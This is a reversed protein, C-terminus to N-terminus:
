HAVPKSNFTHIKTEILSDDDTYSTKIALCNQEPDFWIHSQRTSQKPYERSVKILKNDLTEATFHYRSIKKSKLVPVTFATQDDLCALASLRVALMHSSVPHEKNSATFPKKKHTGQIQTQQQNNSFNFQRKSFAVKQIMNHQYVSWHSNNTSFRSTESREFGTFSALGHTGTTEDSLIYLGEPSKKLTTKQEAM